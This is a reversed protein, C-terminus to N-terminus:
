LSFTFYFCFLILQNRKQLRWNMLFTFMLKAINQFQNCNYKAFIIYNCIYNRSKKVAIVWFRFNKQSEVKRPKFTSQFISM